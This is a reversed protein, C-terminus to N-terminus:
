KNIQVLGNMILSTINEELIKPSIGRERKVSQEVWRLSSLITFLVVEVHFARFEGCAIGAELIAAFRSEYNKRAAKFAKLATAELDRWDNNAVSVGHPDDAIIRIHAAILTKLQAAPGLGSQETEDMRAHYRDSIRFCIEKLLEDKSRIHNYMSAAEMGVREAIDRMSTANFGKTSFLDAALDIIEDRRSRKPPKSM